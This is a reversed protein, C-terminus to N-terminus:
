THDKILSRLRWDLTRCRRTMNSRIYTLTTATHRSMSATHKTRDGFGRETRPCFIPYQSDLLDEEVFEAYGM